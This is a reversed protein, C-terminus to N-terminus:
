VLGERELKRSVCVFLKERIRQMQKYLANVERRTREAVERLTGADAYREALLEREKETLAAVCAALAEARAEDKDAVQRWETALLEVTEESFYKRRTKQRKRFSLVEFRAVACAWPLFPLEADYREFERWLVRATEQMVDDVESPQGLLSAVFRALQREHRTYLNTFEDPSKM